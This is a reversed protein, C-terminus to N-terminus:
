KSFLHTRKELLGGVVKWHMIYLTLIISSLFSASADTHAPDLDIEHRCSQMERSFSVAPMPAVVTTDQTVVLSPMRCGSARTM